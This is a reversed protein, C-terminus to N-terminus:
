RTIPSLDRQPGEVRIHARNLGEGEGSFGQPLAEGFQFTRLGGADSRSSRGVDIRLRGGIRVCADTGEVAVYGQGYRACHNPASQQRPLAGGSAGKRGDTIQADAISTASFLLLAAGLGGAFLTKPSSTQHLPSSKLLVHRM